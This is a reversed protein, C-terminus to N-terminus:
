KLMQNCVAVWNTTMEWQAEVLSIAGDRVQDHLYDEVGDKQHFGLDQNPLRLDCIPFTM